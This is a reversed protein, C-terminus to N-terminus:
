GQESLMFRCKYLGSVTKWYVVLRSLIQPIGFQNSPPHGVSLVMGAVSSKHEIIRSLNLQSFLFFKAM